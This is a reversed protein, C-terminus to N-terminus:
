EVALENRPPWRPEHKRFILSQTVHHLKVLAKLRKAPTFTSLAIYSLTLTPRTHHRRPWQSVRTVPVFTRSMVGLRKLCCATHKLSLHIDSNQLFSVVQYRLDPFLVCITDVLLMGAINESLKGSKPPLFNFLYIYYISLINCLM